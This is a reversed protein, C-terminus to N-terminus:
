ILSYVANYRPLCPNSNPMNILITLRQVCNYPKYELFASSNENDEEVSEQWGYV